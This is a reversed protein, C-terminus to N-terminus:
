VPLFSGRKLLVSARILEAWEQWSARHERSYQSQLGPAQPTSPLALSSHFTSTHLMLFATFVESQHPQMQEERHPPSPAEFGRPCLLKPHKNQSLLACCEARLPTPHAHVLYPEPPHSRPPPSRLPIRWGLDNQSTNASLLIDEPTVWPNQPKGGLEPM